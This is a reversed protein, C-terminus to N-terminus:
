RTSRSTLHSTMGDGSRTEISRGDHSIILPVMVTMVLKNKWKEWMTWERYKEDKEKFAENLKDTSTIKVDVVAKRWECSVRRLLALDPKLM